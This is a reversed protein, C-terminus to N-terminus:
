PFGIYRGGLAVTTWLTLSIVAVLRGTAPNLQTEDAATIRRRVSFTLAVVVILAAMKVWFFTLYYYKTAFCMFLLIGTSMAVVLGRLLWKEADRALLAVPQRRLGLGLLRLDVLLVAGGIMTLGILHITAIVPFVWPSDRMAVLPASYQVWRCFELIM